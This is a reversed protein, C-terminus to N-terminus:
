EHEMEKRAAIIAERKKSKVDAAKKAKADTKAKQENLKAKAKDAKAKKKNLINTLNLKKEGCKYCVLDSFDEASYGKGLPIDYGSRQAQWFAYIYKKGVKRVLINKTPINFAEWDHWCLKM